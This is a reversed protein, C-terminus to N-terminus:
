CVFGTVGVQAVVITTWTDLLVESCDKRFVACDLMCRWAYLTQASPLWTSLLKALGAMLPPGLLCPGYQAMAIDLLAQLRGRV